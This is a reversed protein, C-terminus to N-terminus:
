AMSSGRAYDFNTVGSVSQQDIPAARAVGPNLWMLGLIVVLALFGTIWRGRLNNCGM